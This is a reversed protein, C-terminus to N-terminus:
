PKATMRVRVQDSSVWFRNFQPASEDGAAYFVKTAVYAYGAGMFQGDFVDALQWRQGDYFEAWNHYAIPDLICNRACRYGGLMRAPIDCARCLAVFLCTMETCDGRGQQLAWVAGKNQASFGDNQVHEKVWKFIGHAKEVTDQGAFGKAQVQIGPDNVEIFPEAMLYRARDETGISAPESAAYKLDAELRLVRLAYPALEAIVWAVTQNGAVDKSRTSAPSTRVDMTQQESTWLVPASARVEVNKLVEGSQNEVIFMAQVYKDQSADEAMALSAIACLGMSLGIRMYKTIM